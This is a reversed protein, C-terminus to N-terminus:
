EEDLASSIRGGGCLSGDVALVLLTVVLSGDVSSELTARESQPGSSCSCESELPRSVLSESPQRQRELSESKRVNGEGM